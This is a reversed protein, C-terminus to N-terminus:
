LPEFEGFGGAFYVLPKAETDVRLGRVHGIVILHDGAVHETQLDCEITAVADQMVAPETFRDAGPAAAHRAFEGHGAALVHLSFNGARRMRRWTLSDRSPCFPVLPPDLSVAAFSSVILGLPTDDVETTVFVVGTAFRGFAKRLSREHFDRLAPQLAHANHM